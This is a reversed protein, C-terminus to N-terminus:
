NEWPWTIQQDWKVIIGPHTKEFEKIQANVVTPDGWSAYTIVVPKSTRKAATHKAAPKAATIAAPMGVGTVVMAGTAALLGIYTLQIM